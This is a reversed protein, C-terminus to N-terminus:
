DKAYKRPNRRTTDKVQYYLYVALPIQGSWRLHRVSSVPVFVLEVKIPQTAVIEAKHGRQGKLEFQNEAANPSRREQRIPTKKPRFM